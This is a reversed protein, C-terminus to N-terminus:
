RKSGVSSQGSVIKIFLEQAEAATDQDFKMRFRIYPGAATYGHPPFIGTM